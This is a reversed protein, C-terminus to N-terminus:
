EFRENNTTELITGLGILLAYGAYAFRSWPLARALEPDDSPNYGQVELRRKTVESLAM